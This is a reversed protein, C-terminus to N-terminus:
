SGFTHPDLMQKLREPALLPAIETVVWDNGNPDPALPPGQTSDFGASTDPSVREVSVTFGPLAM